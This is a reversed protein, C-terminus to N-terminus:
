STIRTFVRRPLPHFHCPLPSPCFDEAVRLPSHTAPPREKYLHIIVAAARGRETLPLFPTSFPRLHHHGRLHSVRITTTLSTHAPTTFFRLRSLISLTQHLLNHIPQTDTRYLGKSSITVSGPVEDTVGIGQPVLPCLGCSSRQEQFRLNYM